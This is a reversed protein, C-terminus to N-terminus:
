HTACLMHVGKSNNKEKMLVLNKCSHRTPFFEKLIKYMMGRIIDFM